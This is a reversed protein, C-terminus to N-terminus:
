AEIALLIQVPILPGLCVVLAVDSGLGPFAGLLGPRWLSSPRPRQILHLSPDSDALAPLSLDLSPESPPISSLRPSRAATPQALTFPSPSANASSKSASPYLLISILFVVRPISRPLPSPRRMRTSEAAEIRSREM